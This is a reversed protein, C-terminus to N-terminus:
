NKVLRMKQLLFSANMNQCVGPRIKYDFFLENKEITSDFYHNIFRSDEHVIECVKLDHTALIGKTNLEIIKKLLLVSGEEKDKSNTGKLIEDMLFFVLEGSEMADVMYRLRNLEAHFYSSEQNVDDQTRMSSYLRMKPIIANSALVPFGANALVFTIGVARLFTSKGAMNPGTIIAIKQTQNLHFDNAVSKTHHVFPHRLNKIKIDEGHHFEAFTATSFNHQFLAGSIWLEWEVLLQEGKALDDHHQNSWCQFQHAVQYDWLLTLNLVTGVLLNMRYDMRRMIKELLIVQQEFLNIEKLNSELWAPLSQNKTLEHQLLHIQKKMSRIRGYYSGVETFLATHQKQRSGIVILNIFIFLSLISGSVLGLLYCALVVFFLSPLIMRVWKRWSETVNPQVFSRFNEQDKEEMLGLQTHSLFQFCWAIKDQLFLIAERQVEISTIGEKLAQAVRARGMKTSARNILGFVSKKGFLDLDREYPHIDSLFELDQQDRWQGELVMLEHQILEIQLRFDKLDFRNNISKPILYLFSGGFGFIFMWQVSGDLFYASLVLLIFTTLRGLILKKQTNKAAELKLILRQIQEQYINNATM